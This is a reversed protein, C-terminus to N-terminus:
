EAVADVEPEGSIRIELKNPLCIISQGARSISGSHVCDKGPCTADPVSVAGNEVTVTNDYAGGVTFSITESLPIQRILRGDQYVEVTLSGGSISRSLLVLALAGALTLVCAIVILDSKRFRLHDRM